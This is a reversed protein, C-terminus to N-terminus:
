ERKLAVSLPVKNLTRRSIFIAIFYSVLLAILGIVAKTWSFEIPIAFDISSTLKSVIFELIKKMVPISIIYAIIIFPTYINLVISSISRDGYGMVKMLSITKKNEEVVINAIVLIIIFAMISAFFIVVYIAGNSSSMQNKLNDKKTLYESLQSSLARIEKSCREITEEERSLNESKKQELYLPSFLSEDSDEGNLEKLFIKAEEISINKVKIEEELKSINKGINDIEDNLFEYVSKLTM